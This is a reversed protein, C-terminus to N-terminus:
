QDQGSRERREYRWKRFAQVVVLVFVAVAAVVWLRGWGQTVDWARSANWLMFPAAVAGIGLQGYSLNRMALGKRGARTLAPATRVRDRLARAPAYRAWMQWAIFLGIWIAAAAYTAWGPARRDIGSALTLGGIVLMTGVVGVWSSLRLARSYGEIFDRHEDANVRIAPGTQDQRYLFGQGEPEFQRAFSDKLRQHSGTAIM